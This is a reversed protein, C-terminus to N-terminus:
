LNIKLSQKFTEGFSWDDSITAEDKGHFFTAVDLSSWPSWFSYHFVRFCTINKWKRGNIYMSLKLYSYPIIYLILTFFSLSKQFEQEKIKGFLFDLTQSTKCIVKSHTTSRKLLHSKQFYWIHYKQRQSFIRNVEYMFWLIRTSYLINDALAYKWAM